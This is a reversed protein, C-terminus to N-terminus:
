FSPLPLRFAQALWGVTDGLLHACTELGLLAVQQIAGRGERGECVRACETRTICWVLGEKGVGGVQDQQGAPVSFLRRSEDRAVHVVDIYTRFLAHLSAQRPNARMPQARYCGAHLSPAALDLHKLIVVSPPLAPRQASSCAPCGPVSRSPGGGSRVYPPLYM